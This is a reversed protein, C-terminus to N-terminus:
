IRSGASLGGGYHYKGDYGWRDDIRDLNYLPHPKAVDQVNETGSNYSGALRVHCNAEVLALKEDDLMRQLMGNGCRVALTAITSFMRHVSDAEKMHAHMHEDYYRGSPNHAGGGAELADIYANSLTALVGDNGDAGCGAISQDYKARAEERTAPAPLGRSPPM